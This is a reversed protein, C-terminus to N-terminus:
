EEMFHETVVARVNGITTIGPKVVKDCVFCKLVLEDEKDAGTIYAFECTSCVLPQVLGRRVLKNYRHFLRFLPDGPETMM